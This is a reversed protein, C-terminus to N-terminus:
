RLEIKFREEEPLNWEADQREVNRLIEVIRDFDTKMAAQSLSSNSWVLLVPREVDTSLADWLADLNSGYYSPFGLAQAIAVHFDVESQVQRGDIEAIM